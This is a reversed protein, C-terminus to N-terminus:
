GKGSQWQGLVKALAERWLRKDCAIPPVSTPLPATLPLIVRPDYVSPATTHVLTLTASDTVQQSDHLQYRPVTYCTPACHTIVHSTQLSGRIWTEYLLAKEPQYSVKIIRYEGTESEDFVYMLNTISGSIVRSHVNFLHDHVKHTQVRPHIVTPDWLHLRLAEGSKNSALKAHIFGLPHWNPHLQDWHRDLAYALATRVDDGLPANFINLFDGFVDPM